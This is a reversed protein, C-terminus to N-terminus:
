RVEGRIEKAAKRRGYAHDETCTYKIEEAIRAADETADSYGEAYAALYIKKFLPKMPLSHPAHGWKSGWLKKFREEPTM